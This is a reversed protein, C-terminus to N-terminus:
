NTIHQTHVYKTHHSVYACKNYTLTYLVNKEYVTYQLVSIPGTIKQLNDFEPQPIETFKSM